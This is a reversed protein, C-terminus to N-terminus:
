SKEKVLVSVSIEIEHDKVKNYKYSLKELYLDIIRFSFIELYLTMSLIFNFDL